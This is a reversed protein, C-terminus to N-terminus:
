GLLCFVVLVCGTIAVGTIVNRYLKFKKARDKLYEIDAKFQKDLDNM